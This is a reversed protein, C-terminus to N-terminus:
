WKRGCRCPEFAVSQSRWDDGLEIERTIGGGNKWPEDVLDTSRLIKM